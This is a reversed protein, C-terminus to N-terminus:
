RWHIYNLHRMAAKGDVGELAVPADKLGDFFWETQWRVWPNRDRKFEDPIAGYEPM